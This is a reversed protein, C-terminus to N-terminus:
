MDAFVLDVPADRGGVNASGTFKRNNFLSRSGRLCVLATRAAAFSFKCRLVDVARSYQSGEKAAIKAALYKVAVSMEPGMGGMSSMIMPTFSGAEVQEVRESYERKKELSHKRYVSALSKPHAYSTAHPYFVRFDFFANRWKGWFGRVRVDSRAEDSVNASAGRLEEGSLPQLHPELGVDAFVKKCEQAWVVEMENHRHNILGGKKCSQSHDITFDAGCACKSSLFSIPMVYRLELLDRFDRKSRFAFGYEEVPRASFVASAGKESAVELARRLKDHEPVKQKVVLAQQKVREARRRKLERRREKIVGMDLAGGGALIAEQIVGTLQQSDDYSERAGLVPNDISLGGLRSPLAYIERHLDSIAEGMRGFLAPILQERQVDELEQFVEEMYGMCRQLFKWRHRVAHIYLAHAAHPQVKALDAVVRVMDVWGNVKDGMYKRRFALSGVAAGLDRSGSEKAIKVGTSRFAEEAEAERGEKVVLWTKSARPYYGYRPGIEVLRDWWRRLSEVTGVAQGDDAYWSQVWEGDLVKLERILPLLALGYMVMALPDGQTVGEDSMLVLGGSVFLKAPRRYCNILMVSLSPCIHRINLLAVRRNLRNFANDADVLLLGDFAEREFAKKVAHVVAECAAPQGTCMQDVGAANVVDDGLVILVAKGIARREVEGIGVPRVGPNKDLPILRNNLYADLVEPDMYETCMRRAKEALIGRLEESDRGFSCVVRKWHRADGQSVGGAGQTELFAKKIVEPTLADFIAAHFAPPPGSIVAEESVEEGEPHKSRLTDVVELDLPLVGGKSDVDSGAYREVLKAAARMKNRFVLSTVTRTFQEQSMPARETMRGQFVLAEELLADIEGRDWLDLRRRLNAVHDKKKAGKATRQLLLHVMIKEAKAALLQLPGGEYIQRNLRAVERVFRKGQSGSPLEVVNKKFNQAVCDYAHEIQRRMEGYTKEGWVVTQDDPHVVPTFSPLQLDDGEGAESTGSTHDNDGSDDSGGSNSANCDSDTDSSWEDGIFDEDDEETDSDSM